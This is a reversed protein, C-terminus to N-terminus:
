KKKKLEGIHKIIQWATYQFREDKDKLFNSVRRIFLGEKQLPYTDKESPEFIKDMGVGLADALKNITELSAKKKGREIHSIFSPHLGSKFALEEQTIGMGERIIRIRKGVRTYIDNKM